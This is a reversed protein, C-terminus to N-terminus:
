VCRKPCLALGGDAVDDEDLEDLVCDRETEGVVAQLDVGSFRASRRASDRWM